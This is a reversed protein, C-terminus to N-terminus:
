YSKILVGSLDKVSDMVSDWNTSTALATDNPNVGGNAVDWKFGKCSVNYAGEGQLRVTINQKGTIVDTYMLTDESDELVVADAALGLTYYQNRTPSVNTNILAASDTVLVPRNLTVPTASAVNFNSLGDINRTIQDKVLDYYVKSHMVWLGIKDAADGFNALGNVLDITDLTNPPSGEGDTVLAAQGLIAAAVARLGTNLQDVQYAKAIQGGLLMSLVEFDANMGLKKFSDLTQDIPGIRRNLKVSIREDAPVASATVAQNAPSTAVERRNILSSVNKFFSEQHFDGMRMATVLRIAGMSAANFADTNQVLTEVMGSHVLEPYILGEPLRGSGAFSERTGEAM